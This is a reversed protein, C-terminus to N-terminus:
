YRPRDPNFVMGGPGMSPDAEVMGQDAQIVGLADRLFQDNPAHKSVLAQIQDVPMSTFQDEPIGLTTQAWQGLERIASGVDLPGAGLGDDYGQGGATNYPDPNSGETPVRPDLGGGSDITEPNYSGQPEFQRATQGYGGPHNALDAGVGTTPLDQDVIGKGPGQLPKRGPALNPAGPVMVGPTQYTGEALDTGFYATRSRAM